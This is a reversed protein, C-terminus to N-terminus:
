LGGAKARYRRSRTDLFDNLADVAHRAGNNWDAHEERAGDEDLEEEISESTNPPGPKRRLSSLDICPGKHQKETKGCYSCRM